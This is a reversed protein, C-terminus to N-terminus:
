LRIYIIFVSNDLTTESWKICSGCILKLEQKCKNLIKGEFWVGRYNEDINTVNIVVKFFVTISIIVIDIILNHCSFFSVLLVSHAMM